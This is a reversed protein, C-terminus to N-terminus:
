QRVGTYVLVVDEKTHWDGKEFVEVEKSGDDFTLTFIQDDQSNHTEHITKIQKM